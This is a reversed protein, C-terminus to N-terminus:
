TTSRARSSAARTRSASGASMTSSVSSPRKWTAPVGATECPHASSTSAASSVPKPGNNPSPSKVEGPPVKGDPAWTATTSTSM